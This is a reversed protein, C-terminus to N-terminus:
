DLYTTLHVSAVEEQSDNLIVNEWSNNIVMVVCRFLMEVVVASTGGSEAFKEKQTSEKRESVRVYVFTHISM